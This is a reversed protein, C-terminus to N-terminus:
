LNHVGNRFAPPLSNRIEAKRLTTIGVSTELMMEVEEFSESVTMSDADNQGFWIISHGSGSSTIREIKDVNILNTGGLTENLKLFTM